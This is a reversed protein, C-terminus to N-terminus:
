LANRYANPYIGVKKKFLRSFSNAHEFGIQIAIDQIPLKTVKLLRCAEELRLQTILQHPTIRFATKFLRLFHHKSLCSVQALEELTISQNFYSRIYDIADSLRKYLEVKTSRKVMPLEVITKLVERHKLLLYGLLGSLQEEFLLSDFYNEHSVQLQKILYQFHRDQQYLKSQFTIPRKNVEENELLRDTQTVMCQYLQQAFFEGFHINFLEVPSESEVELTYYEHQNTLFFHQQPILVTKGNVSCRSTGTMNMFISIPGRINPRYVAQSTANLIVNPWGEHKLLNGEVSRRDGFRTNVQKKLWSLDPFAKIIM